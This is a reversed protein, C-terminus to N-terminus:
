NSVVTQRQLPLLVSRGLSYSTVLLVQNQRDQHEVVIAIEESTLGIQRWIVKIQPPNMFSQTYTGRSGASSESKLCLISASTALIEESVSFFNLIFEGILKMQATHHIFSVNFM